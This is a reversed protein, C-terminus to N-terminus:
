KETNNLTAGFAQPSHTGHLIVNSMADFAVLYNEIDVNWIVRQLAGCAADLAPRNRPYIAGV